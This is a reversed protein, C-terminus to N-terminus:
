RSTWDDLIEGVRAGIQSAIYYELERIQRCMLWQGGGFYDRCLIRVQCRWQQGSGM